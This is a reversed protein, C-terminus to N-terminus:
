LRHAIRAGHRALMADAQHADMGFVLTAGADAAMCTPAVVTLSRQPTRHPEGTRADILHHYRRNRHVFYRQYDGSTAVGADELALSAALADPRDPSQIGVHWPDGSPSRGLAYLDGGAGVLAHEIGHDRLAGTARDVAYGKAIGGLDIQADEDRLLVAPVGRHEDVDLSQYLRRAALRAVRAAPPPEERHAVDWLMTAGGLCPDFIGGSWEAWRLSQRLVAATDPTVTVATQGARANARGIDSAAKFRSMREDVRRMADVAADIAARAELPDRHAVAFEALTGMLPVTHRVLTLPRRRGFPVAAMLGGIGIFLIERRGPRWSSSREVRSM